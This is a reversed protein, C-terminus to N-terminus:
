QKGKLRFCIVRSGRQVHSHRPHLALVVATSDDADYLITEQVDFVYVRCRFDRLSTVRGQCYSGNKMRVYVLAGVGPTATLLILNM